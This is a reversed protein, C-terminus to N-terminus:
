RQSRLGMTCVPWESILSHPQFSDRSGAKGKGEPDLIQSGYKPSAAHYRPFCKLKPYPSSPSTVDGTHLIFADPRQPTRDMPPCIHSPSTLTSPVHIHTTNANHPHKSALQTGPRPWAAAPTPQSPRVLTGLAGRGVALKLSGNRGQM